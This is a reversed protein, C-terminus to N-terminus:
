NPKPVMNEMLLQVQGDLDDARVLMADLREITIKAELQEFQKKMFGLRGTQKAVDSDQCFFEKGSSLLWGTLCIAIVIVLGYM